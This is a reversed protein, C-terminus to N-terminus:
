SVISVALLNQAAHATLPPWISRTKVYLWSLLLGTVFLPLMTSLMMHAAAFILSSIVVARIAGFAPILAALLFGRFFVEETFPGWLVIILTNLLREFGHGLVGEPLPTPELLEVGMAIVTASYISAFALSGFLALWPLTLVWRAEPQRLGLSRWRAHYRKIGFVWVAVLMLGEVAGALLPTPIDRAEVAGVGIVLGLLIQIVIFSAFLFATALAVDTPKWPVPERGTDLNSAVEKRIDL